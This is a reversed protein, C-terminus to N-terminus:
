GCVHVQGANLLKILQVIHIIDMQTGKQKAPTQPSPRHRDATLMVGNRIPM